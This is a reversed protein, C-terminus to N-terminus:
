TISLLCGYLFIVQGKRETVEGWREREGDRERERERERERDKEKEKDTLGSTGSESGAAEELGLITM